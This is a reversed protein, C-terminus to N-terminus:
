SGAQLTMVLMNHLLYIVGDKESIPGGIVWPSNLDFLICGQQPIAHGIKDGPYLM